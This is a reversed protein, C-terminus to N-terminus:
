RFLLQATAAGSTTDRIEDSFKFSSFVPLYATIGFYDTGPRVDQHTVRARRRGLVSVAKGLATMSVQIDCLYMPEVIRVGHKMFASRCAEKVTSIIQGSFPGQATAVENDVPEDSISIDEVIFAVGTMPEECLPGSASALQFGSVFSNDFKKIANGKEANATGETENPSVESSSIIGMRQVLPQWCRSDFYGPVHNLLM